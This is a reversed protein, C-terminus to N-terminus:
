APEALLAGVAQADDGLAARLIIAKEAASVAPDPLRAWVAEDVQSVAALIETALNECRKATAGVYYLASAPTQTPNADTSPVPGGADSWRKVVDGASGDLLSAIWKKDADTLAVLDELHWTSADSELSTDYEASFHAHGTHPDGTATYVEARWLPSRYIKRDFIIYRLRPENLPDSNDRRCRGLIFQVVEDLTLGPERLDTDIDIAHVENVHDADKGALKPFDEDPLHDSTGGAAHAVDGISGDSAKDRNPAILDFEFRLRKLCPILVWDAM